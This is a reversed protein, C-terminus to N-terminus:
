FWDINVMLGFRLPESLFPRDDYVQFDKWLNGDYIDQYLGDAVHRVRWQECSETFDPLLLFPQLSNEISLYCYTMFSYLINKGGALEVSKLLLTGCSRMQEHPHQPYAKYSCRQSRQRPEFGEVCHQYFYIRHCERCVVYRRFQKEKPRHTMRLM